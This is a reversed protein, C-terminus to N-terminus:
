GFKPLSPTQCQRLLKAKAASMRRACETDSIALARLDNVTVIAVTRQSFKELLHSWLGDDFDPQDRKLLVWADKKPNLL